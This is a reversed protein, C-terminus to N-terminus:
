HPGFGHAEVPGCYPAVELFNSWLSTQADYARVMVAAGCLGAFREFLAGGTTRTIPHAEPVDARSGTVEFAQTATSWRTDYLKAGMLDYVAIYTRGGPTFGEGSVVISGEVSTLSVNNLEPASFTDHYGSFPESTPNLAPLAESRLLDNAVASSAKSGCTPQVVQWNSWRETADDLARIMASAGCLGAFRERLMGGPSLFADEQDIDTLVDGDFAEIRYSANVWRNEYLQRGMQDYIALYVKGGATFGRGTVVVEDKEVDYPLLQLNPTAFDGEQIPVFQVNRALVNGVNGLLTVLCLLSCAVVMLARSRYSRNM